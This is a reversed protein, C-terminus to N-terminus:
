QVDDAPVRSVSCCDGGDYLHQMNPNLKPRKDPLQKLPMVNMELDMIKKAHTMADEVNKHAGYYEYGPWSKAKFEAPDGWHYKWSGKEKNRLLILKRIAM